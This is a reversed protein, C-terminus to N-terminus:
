QPFHHTWRLPKTWGCFRHRGERACVERVESPEQRAAVQQRGGCRLLGRFRFGGRVVKVSVAKPNRRFREAVRQELGVLPDRRADRPLLLSPPGEGGTACVDRRRAGLEHAKRAAADRGRQPPVHPRARQAGVHQLRRRRAAVESRREGLSVHVLGGRGLLLNNEVEAAGERGVALERHSVHAVVQPAHQERVRLSRRAHAVHLHGAVVGLRLRLRGAQMAGRM